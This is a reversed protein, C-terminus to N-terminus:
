SLIEWLGLVSTLAYFALMWARTLVAPRPAGSQPASLFVRSMSMGRRRLYSKLTKQVNLNEADLKM